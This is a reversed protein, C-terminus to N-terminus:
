LAFDIDHKYNVDNQQIAFKSLFQKISDDNKNNFLLTVVADNISYSDEISKMTDNKWDITKYLTPYHESLYTQVQSFKHEKQLKLFIEGIDDYKDLGNKKYEHSDNEDDHNNYMTHRMRRKQLFAKIKQRKVKDRLMFTSAIMALSTAMLLHISLNPKQKQLMQMNPNILEKVSLLQTSQIKEGLLMNPKINLSGIGNQLQFMDASSLEGTVYLTKQGKFDIIFAKGDMNPIDIRKAQQAFDNITQEQQKSLNSSTPKLEFQNNKNVLFIDKNLLFKIIAYYLENEMNFANTHAQESISLHNNKNKEFASANFLSLSMNKKRVCLLNM